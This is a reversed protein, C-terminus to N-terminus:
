VSMYWKRPVVGVMKRSSIVYSFHAPPLSFGCCLSEIENYYGGASM